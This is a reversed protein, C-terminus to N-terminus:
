FFAEVKKSNLDSHTSPKRCYIDWFGEWVSDFVEPSLGIEKAHTKMKVLIEDGQLAPDSLISRLKLYNAEKMIRMENLNLPKELGFIFDEYAKGVMMVMKDTKM